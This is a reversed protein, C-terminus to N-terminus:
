LNEPVINRTLSKVGQEAIGRAIQQAPYEDDRLDAHDGLSARVTM